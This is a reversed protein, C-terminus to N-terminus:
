FDETEGQQMVDRAMRDSSESKATNCFWCEMPVHDKGAPATNAMRRILEGLNKNFPQDVKSLPAMNLTIESEEFQDNRTM